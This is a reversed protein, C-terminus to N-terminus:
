FVFQQGGTAQVGELCLAPGLQSQAPAVRQAHRSSCANSFASARASAAGGSADRKGVCVVGAARAAEGRM